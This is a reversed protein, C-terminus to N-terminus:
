THGSCAILWIFATSKIIDDSCLHFTQSLHQIEFSLSRNKIVPAMMGFIHMHLVKLVAGPLSVGGARACMTLEEAESIAIRM